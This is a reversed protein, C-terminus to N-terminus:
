CFITTSFCLINYGSSLIYRTYICVNSHNRIINQFHNGSGLAKYFV